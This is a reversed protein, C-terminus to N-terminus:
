FGRIKSNKSLRIETSFDIPDVWQPINEVYVFYSRLCMTIQGSKYSHTADVCQGVNEKFPRMKKYRRHSWIFHLDSLTIRRRKM